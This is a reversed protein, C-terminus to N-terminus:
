FISHNLFLQGSTNKLFPTRLIHLLNVSSCGHGFTIKFLSAKSGQQFRVETHTNEQLTAAYERLAGKGLFM